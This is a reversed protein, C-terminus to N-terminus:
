FIQPNIRVTWNVRQRGNQTLDKDLEPEEM